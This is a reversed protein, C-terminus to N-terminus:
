FGVVWTIEAEVENMLKLQSFGAYAVVLNFPTHINADGSVVLGMETIVVSTFTSYVIDGNRADIFCKIAVEGPTSFDTFFKPLSPDSLWVDGPAATGYPNTGGSFRVPRELTSIPPSTPNTHDYENGDTANPDSGAPYATNVAAIPNVANVGGIGFQVHKIRSTPVVPTDPGYSAYALVSALYDRGHDTWTNHDEWRYFLKGRRRAQIFVNPKM